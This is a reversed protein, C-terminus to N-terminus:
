FASSLFRYYMTLFRGKVSMYPPYELYNRPRFQKLKALRGTSRQVFLFASCLVIFSFTFNRMKTPSSRDYKRNVLFSININQFQVPILNDGIILCRHFAFLKILGFVVHALNIKDSINVLKCVFIGQMFQKQKALHVSIYM